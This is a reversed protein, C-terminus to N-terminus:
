KLIYGNADVVIAYDDDYDYDQSAEDDGLSTEIFYLKQGASVTFVQTKYDAKKATLTVQTSSSGLDKTTLTFGDLARTAAASLPGPFVQYAKSAYPQASLLLGTSTLSSKAQGAQPTTTPTVTNTAVPQNQGDSMSSDYPPPLQNQNSLSQSSGGSVAMVIGIIVVIVIIAIVIIRKNM